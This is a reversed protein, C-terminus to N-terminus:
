SMADGGQSNEHAPDAVTAGLIYDAAKQAAAAAQILLKRDQSLRSYWNSIYSASTHPNRAL